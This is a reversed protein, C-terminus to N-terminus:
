LRPSGLGPLFSRLVDSFDSFQMLFILVGYVDIAYLFLVVLQGSQGIIATVFLTALDIYLVTRLFILSFYSFILSFDSALHIYLLSNLLNRIKQNIKEIFAIYIRSVRTNKIHISCM